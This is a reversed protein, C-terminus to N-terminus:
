FTTDLTYRRYLPALIEALYGMEETAHQHLRRALEENLNAKRLADQEEETLIKGPERSRIEGLWFRSRMECGYDTDRVFHTMRGFDIPHDLDGIRACVAVVGSADYREQRVIGVPRPLRHAAQLGARQPRSINTFLIRPASITETGAIKGIASCTTPRIGCAINNPVALGASGGICWRPAAVRCARSRPLSSRAMDSIPMAPNWRLIDPTSFRIPKNSQM